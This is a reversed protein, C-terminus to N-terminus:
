PRHKGAKLDTSPTKIQSNQYRRDLEKSRMWFLGSQEAEDYKLIRDSYLDSWFYRERNQDRKLGVGFRNFAENRLARYNAQGSILITLAYLQHRWFSYVISDLRAKGMKLDENERVYEKIGEQVAASEVEKLPGFTSPGISWRLDRFGSWRIEPRNKQPQDDSPEETPLPDITTAKKAPVIRGPTSREEAINGRIIAPPASAANHTKVVRVVADKPVRMKLGHLFFIINGERENVKEAEVSQGDKLVITDASSLAPLLTLTIVASLFGSIIRLDKKM